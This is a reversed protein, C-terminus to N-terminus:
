GQGGGSGTACSGTPGSLVLRRLIWLGGAAHLGIIDIVVLVPQDAPRRVAALGDPTCGRGRSPAAHAVPQAAGGAAGTPEVPGRTREGAHDGAGCPPPGRDAGPRSHRQVPELRADVD